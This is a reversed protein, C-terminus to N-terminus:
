ARRKCALMMGGAALLLLSAPEPVSTFTNFDGEALILPAAGLNGGPVTSQAVGQFEDSRFFGSGDEGDFVNAYSAIYDFSEGVQLGIDSLLLDMEFAPANPDNGPSSTLNVSRIFTHNTGGQLFWLGAFDSQFGIAYDAAFGPAFTLDASNNPSSGSIMRRLGDDTDTLPLTSAFGGAISDIYIVGQNGLGGPGRTLGFNLGGTADSDVGLTAQSGIVNGFGANIGTSSGVYEGGGISGDNIASGTTTDVISIPAALVPGACLAIMAAASTTKM